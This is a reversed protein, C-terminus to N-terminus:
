RPTNMACVTQIVKPRRAKDEKPSRVVQMTVTTFCPHQSAGDLGLGAEVSAIKLEYTLLNGMMTLNADVDTITRGKLEKKVVKSNLIKAVVESNPDVNGATALSSALVIMSFLIKKM